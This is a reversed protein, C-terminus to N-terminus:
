LKKIYKQKVELRLTEGHITVVKFVLYKEWMEFKANLKM